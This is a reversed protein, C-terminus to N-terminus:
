IKKTKITPNNTKKMRDLMNLADNIALDPMDNKPAVHKPIFGLGASATIIKEQIAPYEQVLGKVQEGTFDVSRLANVKIFDVPNQQYFHLMAWDLAHKESATSEPKLHMFEKAFEIMDKTIPVKVRTYMDRAELPSGTAFRNEYGDLFKGYKADLVSYMDVFHSTDLGIAKYLLKPAAEIIAEFNVDKVDIQTEYHEEIAKVVKECLDIPLKFSAYLLHDNTFQPM